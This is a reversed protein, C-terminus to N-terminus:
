AHGNPVSVGEDIARALRRRARNIRSKFTGLKEGSAEAVDKYSADELSVMLIASSTEVPLDDLARTLDRLILSAEQNPSCVVDAHPVDAFYLRELKRRRMRAFFQNRLIRNLWAMLNTGAAFRDRFRWARALTEQVLDRADEADDALSRANAMLKPIAGVLDRAFEQAEM